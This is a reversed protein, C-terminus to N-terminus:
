ESLIPPDPCPEGTYKRGDCKPCTIYGKGSCADCLENIKGTARCKACEILKSCLVKGSGNCKTCYGSMQGVGRCRLCKTSTTGTGDCHSCSRELFGEGRCSLCIFHKYVTTKNGKDDTIVTKKIVYGRHECNYCLIRREGSGDCRRCERTIRGKGSCDPCNETWHGGTGKCQLCRAQGSGKCDPCTILGGQCDLCDISRQGRGECSDCYVRGNMQCKDCLQSPTIWIAKGILIHGKSLHHDLISKKFLQAQYARLGREDLAANLDEVRTTIEEILEKAAASQEKANENVSALSSLSIDYLYSARGLDNLLYAKDAEEKAERAQWLLRRAELETKSLNLIDKKDLTVDCKATRVVITEEGRIVVKGVYVQEDKTVFTELAASDGGYAKALITSSIVVAIWLIKCRM